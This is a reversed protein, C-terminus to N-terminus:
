TAFLRPVGYIPIASPLLCFWISPEEPSETTFFRGGLVLSMPKIGPRPLDGMDLLLYAPAGCSQLRHKLALSNCSSFGMHGLAWSEAALSAVVILLRGVAVLSCARSEAVASLGPCCHLGLVTLFLCMFDYIFCWGFPSVTMTKLYKCSFYNFM